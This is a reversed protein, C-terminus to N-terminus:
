SGGLQIFPDSKPQLVLLSLAYGIKGNKPFRSM